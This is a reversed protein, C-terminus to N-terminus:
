LVWFVRQAMDSRSFYLGLWIDDDGYVVAPIFSIDNNM